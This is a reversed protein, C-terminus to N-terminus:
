SLLMNMNMVALIKWKLKDEIRKPAIRDFHINPYVGADLNAYDIKLYVSKPDHM